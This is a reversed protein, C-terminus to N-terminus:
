SGYVFRDGLTCCCCCQNWKPHLFSGSVQQFSNKEYVIGRRAKSTLVLFFVVMVLRKQLLGFTKTVKASLAGKLTKFVTHLKRHQHRAFSRVVCIYHWCVVIRPIVLDVRELKVKWLHDKTSLTQSSVLAKNSLSKCGVNRFQFQRSRGRQLWRKM